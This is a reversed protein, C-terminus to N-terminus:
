FVILTKKTYAKIKNFINVAIFQRKFEFEPKKPAATKKAVPQPAVEITEEAKAKKAM